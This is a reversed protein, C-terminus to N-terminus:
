RSTSSSPRSSRPLDAPVFFGFDASSSCSTRSRGTRSSSRACRRAAAATPRSCAISRRSSPTRRRRRAVLALAVDNFAATWTSRAAGARRAGDLLHRLAARRARDRGAPHQLRVGAVARRRRHDAPAPPRQHGRRRPRRSPLRAGRRVGRERDGRRSPGAVVWRGRAPYLDNLRRGARTPCRSSGAPPPSTSDRARRAVVDAVVRTEADSSAPSRRSHAAAARERRASRAVAFVDAFRQQRYYAQAPASAALRLEVPLHRVDRRGCAIVLAIALAQGRMALLDRLLKRNLASIAMDSVLEARAAARKHANREVSAIAATPSGSSATPWAPSRRTTRSSRGDDHRARPQRARAGRPRRHRDRHRARRHARRVAARRAAQRHRARDGRAAARRRLAAGSLPGAPRGLGVLALADEPPM